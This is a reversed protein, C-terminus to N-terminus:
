LDAKLSLVISSGLVMLSHPQHFTVCKTAQCCNQLQSHLAKPVCGVKKLSCCCVEMNQMWLLSARWIYLSFLVYDLNWGKVRPSAM